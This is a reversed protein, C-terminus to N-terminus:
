GADGAPLGVRTSGGASEVRVKGAKEAELLFDKFKSFGYEKENFTPLARTLRSKVGAAGATDKGPAISERVAEVLAGFV